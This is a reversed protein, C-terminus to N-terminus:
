LFGQRGGGGVVGREGVRGAVLYDGLLLYGLLVVFEVVRAGLLYHSDVHVPEALLLYFQLVGPLHYCIIVPVTSVVQSNFPGGHPCQSDTSIMKHNQIKNKSQELM